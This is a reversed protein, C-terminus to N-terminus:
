LAEQEVTFGALFVEEGLDGWGALVAYQRMRSLTKPKAPVRLEKSTTGPRMKEWPLLVHGAAQADAAIKAAIRFGGEDIDGWHYVPVSRPLGALVRRYMARWAPSPMGATYILLAERDQGMRAEVHFNTQNEVTLVYEPVTDVALVAKAAFAAYPVDLVARGRVRSVVVNGALRVPQQEKLLGLEQWVDHAARRSTELDGQLLIDLARDLAELRKSNNFLHQSVVRLPLDQADDSQQRRLYELVRTSDVFDHVDDISLSKANKLRRWRDLVSSLVPYRPILPTILETARQVAVSILTVGLITALVAGNLLDVRKIFGDHATAGEWEIRIAGRAAADAMCAEFVEKDKLSTTQRYAALDAGTLAAARQRVEAEHQEGRLLLKHLLDQASTAM